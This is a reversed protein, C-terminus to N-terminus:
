VNSSVLGSRIRGFETGEEDTGLVVRDDSRQESRSRRTGEPVLDKHSAYRDLDSRAVIMRKSRLISFAYEEVEEIKCMLTLTGKSKDEEFRKIIVDWDVSSLLQEEKFSDLIM